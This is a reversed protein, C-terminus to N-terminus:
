RTEKSQGRKDRRGAREREEEGCNQRRKLKKGAERAKRVSLDLACLGPSALCRTMKTKREAEKQRFRFEDSRLPKKKNM